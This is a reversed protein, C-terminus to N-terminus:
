IRTGTLPIEITPKKELGTHLRIVDNFAGKPLDEGLTIELRYERGEEVPSLKVDVGEPLSSADDLTPSMDEAAFNKLIMAAWTGDEEVEIEGFDAESPTLVYMPRVFGSVPVSVVEQKPHNTHVRLYDALSGVPAQDYDLKVSVVWQKGSAEEIREEETAERAEATLFPYPSEIDVVELGEFEDAFIIQDVQGVGSGQSQVFRAFGPRMYIVPAVVAKITLILRPNEPDNTIVTLGKSIGGDQDTTDLVAHVKGSAGPAITEDYDAVTCGCAPRVEEIRLPADGTNRIVFDHNIEGGKEVKGADFIPEDVVARPQGTAEGADATAAALQPLAALLAACLTLIAYLSSRKM